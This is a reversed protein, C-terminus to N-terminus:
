SGRTWELKGGKESDVKISYDANGSVIWRVIVAGMGPINAVEIQDPNYSQEKTIKMDKNLVIM